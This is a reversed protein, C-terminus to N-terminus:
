YGSPTRVFSVRHDPNREDTAVFGNGNRDIRFLQRGAQLRTGKLSGSFETGGARGSVSGGPLISLQVQVRETSDYGSFSGVAWGEVEEGNKEQASKSSAIAALAALGVLAGVAVARDHDGRTKGVRFEGDCGRDVWVGHRDYGWSRDQVCRFIGHDRVLEVRDGTEARCYSYRLGHSTCRIDEAAALPPPMAVLSLALLPAVTRTCLSAPM